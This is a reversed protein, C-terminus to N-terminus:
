GMSKKPVTLVVQFLLEVTAEILPSVQLHIESHIYVGLIKFLEQFNIIPLCWNGKPARGIKLPSSHFKRPHIRAFGDVM